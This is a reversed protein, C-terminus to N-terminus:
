NFTCYARINITIAPTAEENKKMEFELSTTEVKKLARQIREKVSTMKAKLGHLNEQLETM